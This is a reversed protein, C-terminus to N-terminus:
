DTVGDLRYYAGNVDILNGDVVLSDAYENVGMNFAVQDICELVHAPSYELEGFRVPQYIEDLMDRFLEEVDVLEGKTSVIHEVIWDYGFEVGVEPVERMLDDSGCSPCFANGNSDPEVTTYDSYCFPRSQEHALENLHEIIARTANVM